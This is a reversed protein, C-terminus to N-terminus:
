RTRNRVAAVAGAASKVNTRKTVKTGNADVRTVAVAVVKTSANVVCRVTVGDTSRFAMSAGQRAVIAATIPEVIAATIADVNDVNVIPARKTRKTTSTKRVTPRAVVKHGMWRVSGMVAISPLERAIPEGRHNLGVVRVGASRSVPLGDNDILRVRVNTRYMKLVRWASWGPLDVRAAFRDHGYSVSRPINTRKKRGNGVLSDGAGEPRMAWRDVCDPKHTVVQEWSYCDTGIMELREGTAMLYWLNARHMAEDYGMRVPETRDISSSSSSVVFGSRRGRVETGRETSIRPRHWTPDFPADDVISLTDDYTRFTDADVNFLDVVRAATAEDIDAGFSAFLDVLDVVNTRYMAAILSAGDDVNPVLATAKDVCHRAMTAIAEIMYAAPDIRHDLGYRTTEADYLAAERSYTTGMTDKRNAAGIAGFVLLTLRAV